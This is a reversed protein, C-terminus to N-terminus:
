FNNGDLKMREVLIKFDNVVITKQSQMRLVYSPHFTALVPINKWSYFKGRANTINTNIINYIAVAGLCLIYKPKKIEIIRELFPFCFDIEEPQPKRNEPPRWFVRNIVFIKKRELGAELLMNNLLIGSSGVFPMGQLDEQEGPAEGIIVLPSNIDGNFVVTNKCGSKLPHSLQKVEDVINFISTDEYKENLTPKNNETIDLKKEETLKKKRSLPKNSWKKKLFRFM